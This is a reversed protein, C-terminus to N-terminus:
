RIVFIPKTLYVNIYKNTSLCGTGIVKGVVLLGGGGM